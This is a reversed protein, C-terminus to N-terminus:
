RPTLDKKLKVFYIRLIVLIRLTYYADNYLDHFTTEDVVQKFSCNNINNEIHYTLNLLTQSRLFRLMHKNQSLSLLTKFDPLVHM